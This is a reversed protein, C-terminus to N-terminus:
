AGEEVWRGINRTEPDFAVGFRRLRKGCDRYKLAYEHTRIQDLAEEATGQLKFEFLYVTDATQAVADIRGRDTRVEADIRL